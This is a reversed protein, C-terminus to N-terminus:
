GLHPFSKTRLLEPDYIRFINYNEGAFVHELWISYTYSWGYTIRICVYM